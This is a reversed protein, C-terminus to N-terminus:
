VSRTAVVPPVAAARLAPGLVALQGILWLAIAGVPFYVAPLRPLEYHLMLLLNIGYALVMGLAIGITALLFNETQFYHLINGRTAGLARRVGITRRRQGVWFSALGAIGLATVVLLAAIVTALMGAMARDDQFYGHRLEDYTRQELVIRNPDLRKLAALASKLVRERDGSTTRLVYSGGEAATLRIPFVISNQAGMQLSDPRALPSSVGVVQMPIDNGFYITKGLANQGPWLRAAVPQDIIVTRPLNKMDGSHLAPLATKLDVLEDPQFDRGSILRVGLTALLNQGYYSAVELSTKQQQPRLKIGSNSMSYGSLPLQNALAVAQVGAIQRLTALDTQAQAYADPRDGVYAFRIQLLEHEAIGSPIDIQQLRQHILFVANCVIACTLAIQLILLSATIKHRRLTSLIPRIDM